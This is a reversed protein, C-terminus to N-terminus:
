ETKSASAFLRTIAAEAEELGTKKLSSFLQVTVDGHRAALQDKVEKLVNLGQSRSFKDAKTLLIHVPKGTPAFWDLLQRDLDKMPHRADMILVIGALARRSGVYTALLQEWHTKIAFPVNAFGYGPLDVLCLGNGLSFFNILQTRGPTKSVFALRRHRALTNIVSSKGANSRGVFAIEIDQDDPPLQDLDHASAVYIAREFLGM